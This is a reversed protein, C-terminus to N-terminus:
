SHPKKCLVHQIFDLRHQLNTFHKLEEYPLFTRGNTEEDGIFEDIQKVQAHFHVQYSEPYPYRYNDPKEAYVELKQYGILPLVLTATVLYM